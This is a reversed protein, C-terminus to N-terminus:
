AARKTRRRPKATARKHLHLRVAEFTPGTVVLPACGWADWIRTVSDQDPLMMPHLTVAGGANDFRMRDDTDLYSETPLGEALIVEHRELEVHYYSVTDRQEQVVTVGNVLYQVPILVGEVFVAHDPSLLVDRSPMADAFAGARVRIPWVRDPSPHRRCDIRRHGIWRVPLADDERALCVLDGAALDEVAIDGSRTRIRTGAAFCTVLEVGNAGYQVVHLESADILGTVNLSVTYLGAVNIIYNSGDLSGTTQISDALFAVNQLIIANGVAAGSIDGSFNDIDTSGNVVIADLQLQEASPDIFNFDIDTAVTGVGASTGSVIVTAGSEIDITGGGSASEPGFPTVISVQNQIDGTINLTAGDVELTPYLTTADIGFGALNLSAIQVSGGNIFLDAPFSSSGIYPAATTGNANLNNYFAVYIPSVAGAVIYVNDGAGPVSDGTVPPSTIDISSEPAWAGQTNFATAATGWTYTLTGSASSGSSTVPYFAYDAM